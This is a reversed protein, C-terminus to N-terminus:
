VLLLKISSIRALCKVNFLLIDGLIQLIYKTLIKSKKSFWILNSIEGLTGHASLECTIDFKM